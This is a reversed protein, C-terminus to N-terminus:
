PSSRASGPTFEIIEGLVQGPARLDMATFAPKEKALDRIQEDILRAELPRDSFLVHIRVPGEEPPISLAAEGIPQGAKCPVSLDEVSATRLRVVGTRSVTFVLCYPLQGEVPVIQVAGPSNERLLARREAPKSSTSCALLLAAALALIFSRRMSAM